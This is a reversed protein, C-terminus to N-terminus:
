NVVGLVINLKTRSDDGTVIAPRFRFLELLILENQFVKFDIMKYPGMWAHVLLVLACLVSAIAEM